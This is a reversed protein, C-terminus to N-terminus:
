PIPEIRCQIQLAFFVIRARGSSTSEETQECGAFWSIQFVSFGDRQARLDEINEGLTQAQVRAAHLFALQEQALHVARIGLEAQAARHELDSRVTEAPAIRLAGDLREGPVHVGVRVPHFAVVQVGARQATGPLPRSGLARPADGPLLVLRRKWILPAQLPAPGPPRSGGPWEEVSGGGADRHQEECGRGFAGPRRGDRSRGGDGPADGARGVM